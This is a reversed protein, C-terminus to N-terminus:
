GAAMRRARRETIAALIRTRLITQGPKEIFMYSIWSLLTCLGIFLLASWVPHRVPFQHFRMFVPGLMEILMYHWIYLSYSIVGFVAFARAPLFTEFRRGAGAACLLTVAWALSVWMMQVKAMGLGIAVALSVALLLPKPTLEYQALTMGIAFLFFYRMFPAFTTAPYTWGAWYAAAALLLILFFHRRLLFLLPVLCYFVAEYTLTWLVPNITRAVDPNLAQTFTIHRLLTYPTIDQPFSSLLPFLVVAFLLAVYYLPMIRTARHVVYDTLGGRRTLTRSASVWILYGSLIFFLYVGIQGLYGKVSGIAENRVLYHADAHSFLVLLAAIGRLVDIAIVNRHFAHREFM